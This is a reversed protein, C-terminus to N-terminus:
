EAASGILPPSSPFTRFVLAALRWIWGTRDFTVHVSFTLADIVLGVVSIIAANDHLVTVVLTLASFSLAVETGRGLCLRCPAPRRLSLRSLTLEAFKYHGPIIRVKKKAQRNSRQQDTVRLSAISTPAPTTGAIPTRVSIADAPFREITDAARWWGRFTCWFLDIRFFAQKNADRVIFCPAGEVSWPPPFRRASPVSRHYRCLVGAAVDARSADDTLDIIAAHSFSEDGRM